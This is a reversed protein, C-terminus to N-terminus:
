GSLGRAMRVLESTAPVGYVARFRHLAWGVKFGKERAVTLWRALTQARADDEEARKRAFRVMPLGLVRPRRHRLETEYGCEVCPPEVVPSGCVSCFRVDPLDQARRLGAGELSYRREEDPPGHLHTAGTLDLLVARTKGPSSRLVRGVIQDYLGLHGVRRALICISANPVDVGETLIAVNTLVRIAGKRYDLLIRERDRAPMEGWVAAASIGAERFSCAYQIALEVSAAFLMGQEGVYPLFAAVPDQALEGPNLAKDPSLVECPVLVGTDRLEGKTAAVVLQTFAAGLGDGNALM